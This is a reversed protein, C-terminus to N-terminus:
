ISKKNRVNKFTERTCTLGGIGNLLVPYHTGNIVMPLLRLVEIPFTYWDCNFLEKDIENFQSTLKEGFECFIFIQAFSAVLM